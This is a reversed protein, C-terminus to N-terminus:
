EGALRVLLLSDVLAQAERLDFEIGPRLLPTCDSKFGPHEMKAALNERYENRTIRHDEAEMYREFVSAILVPDCAHTRLASALDFLDRGKRRQYLARLKTALLENLDYVPLTAQGSFWRCSVAFPKLQLPLAQFHERTNIEVKVRLPQPPADESQLRFTMTALGPGQKRQPVGMWDELLKRVRNFVPGIPGAGRQVLDIDESYRKPGDFFLKHLATGGRFVLQGSIEADSFLEALVRSIILDQEVM